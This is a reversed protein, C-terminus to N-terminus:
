GGFGLPPTPASNCGTKGKWPLVIIAFSLCGSLWGRHML